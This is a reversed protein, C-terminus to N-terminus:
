ASKNELDVPLHERPLRGQAFRRVHRAPHVRHFRPQPVLRLADPDRTDRPLRHRRLDVDFDRPRRDHHDRDRPLPPRSWHRGLLRTALLMVNADPAFIPVVTTSPTATTAATPTPTPICTAAPLLPFSTVDSWAPPFVDDQVFGVDPLALRQWFRKFAALEWDESSFMRVPAKMEAPTRATAAIERHPEHPWVRLDYLGGAM